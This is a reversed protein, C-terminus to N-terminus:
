SRGVPRPTVIFGNRSTPLGGTVRASPAAPPQPFGVCHLVRCKWLPGWSPERDPRTGSIHLGLTSLPSSGAGARSLWSDGPQPQHSWPGTHKSPRVSNRYSFGRWVASLGLDDLCCGPCARPPARGSCPHPHFGGQCPLPLDRARECSRSNWVRGLPRPGSSCRSWCMGPDEM